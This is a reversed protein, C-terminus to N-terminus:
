SLVQSKLLHSVQAWSYKRIFSEDPATDSDRHIAKIIECAFQEWDDTCTLHSETETGILAEAGITTSIVRKGCAIAELIKFRTGGGSRLPCIVVDSANICDEICDVTGTFILSRHSFELPPNHGIIIFRADPEKALVRPILDRHIIAVAAYNPKYDLKGNFLILPANEAVGLFRRIEARKSVDPHFRETDIGNPVVIIRDGKVNLESVLIDKDVESVCLIRCAFRCVLREYCKLLFVGIRGGREMRGFAVWEVNHEDLVYPVGTLFSLLLAHLGAWGTEAIIFSYRERWSLVLGTVLLLPNFVQSYKGFSRIRSMCFSNLGILPDDGVGSTEVQRHGVSLLRIRFDTALCRSVNYVRNAGGWYPPFVEFPSIILLRDM